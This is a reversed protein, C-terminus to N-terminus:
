KRVPLEYVADCNRLLVSTNWPRSNVGVGGHSEMTMPQSTANKSLAKTVFWVHGAKGSKPPIFAIFLRSPDAQCVDRYNSLKHLNAAECWERQMWSGDPITMHPDTARYICFRVFGSCDIDEIGHSDMDLKPAKGGLDYSVHNAKMNRYIEVVKALEVPIIQTTAM